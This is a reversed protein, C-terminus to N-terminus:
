ILTASRVLLVTALAAALWGLDFESMGLSWILTAFRALLVVALSAAFAGEVVVGHYDPSPAAQVVLVPLDLSVTVPVLGFTM